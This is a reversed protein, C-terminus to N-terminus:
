RDEKFRKTLRHMADSWGGLMDEAQAIADIEFKNPFDASKNVYAYWMAALADLCDSMKCYLKKNDLMYEVLRTKYMKEREFRKQSLVESMKLKEALEAITAQKKDDDTM